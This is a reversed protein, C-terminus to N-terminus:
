KHARVRLAAIMAHSTVYGQSPLPNPRGMRRAEGITPSKANRQQNTQDVPIGRLRM